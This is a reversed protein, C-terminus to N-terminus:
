NKRGLIFCAAFGKVRTSYSLSSADLAEALIGREGDVSQTDPTPSPREEELPSSGPDSAVGFMSKLRDM